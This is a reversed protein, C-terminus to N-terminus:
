RAIAIVRPDGVRMLSSLSKFTFVSDSMRTSRETDRRQLVSVVGSFGGKGDETGRSSNRTTQVRRYFPYPGGERGYKIQVEM